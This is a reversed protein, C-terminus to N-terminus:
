GTSVLESETTLEDEDDISNTRAYMVAAVYQLLQRHKKYIYDPEYGWKEALKEQTLGEVYLNAYLVPLPEHATAIISEYDDVFSRTTELFKDNKGKLLKEM